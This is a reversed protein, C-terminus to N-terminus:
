EMYPLLMKEIKDLADKAQKWLARLEEDMISEADLYDLVVYGLGESEVKQAVEEINWTGM